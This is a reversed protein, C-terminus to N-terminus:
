NLMFNGPVILNRNSVCTEPLNAVDLRKMGTKFSDSFKRFVSRVFVYLIPNVINEVGQYNQM